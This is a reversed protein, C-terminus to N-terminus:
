DYAINTYYITFSVFKLKVSIICTVNIALDFRNMSFFAVYIFCLKPQYALCICYKYITFSVFKLEVCTCCSVYTALSFTNMFLICIDLVCKTSLQPRYALYTCYQYITFSVSKLEVTYLM